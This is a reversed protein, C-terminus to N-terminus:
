EDIGKGVGSQGQIREVTAVFEMGEQGRDQANQRLEQFHSRERFDTTVGVLEEVIQLSDQRRLGLLGDLADLLQQLRQEPRIESGMRVVDDFPRHGKRFRRTLFETSIM